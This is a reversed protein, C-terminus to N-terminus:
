PVILKVQASASGMSYYTGPEYTLIKALIIGTSKPVTDLHMTRIFQDPKLVGSEALVRGQQDVLRLMVWGKNTAPATLWIEVDGNEDVSLTSVMSISIQDSLTLTGYPLGDVETPDPAGAVANEAFPPPTFEGVVREPERSGRICVAAIVAAVILAALVSLICIEKKSM